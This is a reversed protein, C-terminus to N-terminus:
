NHVLTQSMKAKMRARQLNDLAERMPDGVYENGLTQLVARSELPSALTGARRGLGGVAQAAKGAGQVAGLATGAAGRTGTSIVSGIHAAGDMGNGVTRGIARATKATAGTAGMATAARHGLEGLTSGSTVGRKAAEESMSMGRALKDSGTELSETAARRLGSGQRRLWAGASPFFKNATPHSGLAQMARPINKALYGPAKLVDGVLEAEALGPAFTALGARGAANQLRGAGAAVAGGAGEVVSGAAKVTPSVIGKNMVATTAARANKGLLGAAAPLGYKALGFSGADVAANIGVDKAMAGMNEESVRKYEPSIQSLIARTAIDGMAGGAAAGGLAGLGGTVAGLGTAGLASGAMRPIELAGELADYRDWGPTNTLGKYQGSEPDYYYWDRGQGMVQANPIGQRQLTQELAQKRMDDNPLKSVVARLNGDVTDYGAKAPNVSAGKVDYGLNGLAESLTVQYPGQDDVLTITRGDESGGQPNYGLKALQGVIHDDDLTSTQGDDDIDYSLKGM